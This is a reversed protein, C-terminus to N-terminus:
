WFIVKVKQQFYPYFHLCCNVLLYLEFRKLWVLCDAVSASLAIWFVASAVPSEIPLLIAPLIVFTEFVEGIDTLPSVSFLSNSLFICFSIYIGGSFLSCIILSSLNNSQM